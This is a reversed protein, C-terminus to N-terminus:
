GDRGGNRGRPHHDAAAPKPGAGRSRGSLPADHGGPPGARGIKSGRIQELIGRMRALEAAWKQRGTISGDRNPRKDIIPAPAKKKEAPTDPEGAERPPAPVDPQGTAALPSVVVITPSKPHAAPERPNDGIGRAIDPVPPGATSTTASPVPDGPASGPDPASPVPLAPPTGPVPAEQTTQPILGPGVAQIQPVPSIGLGFGGLTSGIVLVTMGGILAVSGAWAIARRQEM